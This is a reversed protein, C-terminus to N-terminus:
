RGMLALPPRDARDGVAAEETTGGTDIFPRSQPVVAWILSSFATLSSQRRDRLKFRVCALSVAAHRESTIALMRAPSPKAPAQLM